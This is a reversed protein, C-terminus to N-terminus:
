CAHTLCSIMVVANTNEIALDWRISYFVYTAEDAASRETEITIERQIGVILNGKPTLLVDTYSGAGITGYGPATGLNTPMLPCDIIPVNLYSIPAKGLIVADGLETGRQQLVELYDMTVIDSNLFAMNKLGGQMKYKAPMLKLARHYKHEVSYPANTDIGSIKGALDFTSGSTGGDCAALVQAGGPVANNYYTDTTLQSYYTRYRWGMYSGRLDDAAFTNPTVGTNSIWAVEELENAIKKAIMGMLKMKWEAETEIGRLDELDDDFVVVCGRAKKSALQIKNHAWEKKYKSENFSGEPYLFRGSGFGIARINKQPKVMREIRAYKIMSSEDFVMDLFTDAEQETLTVSPISILNFGKQMKWKELLKNAASM